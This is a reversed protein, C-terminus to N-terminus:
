ESDLSIWDCEDLDLKHMVIWTEMPDERTETIRRDLVFLTDGRFTQSPAADLSVPVKGDVCAEQLDPSTAGAWLQGATEPVPGDTSLLERDLHTFAIGGGPLEHLNSTESKVTIQEGELDYREVVDDPVGRRRVSPLALTDLVQGDRDFLWLDNYGSWGRVLTDGLDLVQGIRFSVAYGAEGTLEVSEHYEEPLTGFAERTGSEPSWRVFPHHGALDLTAFVLGDYTEVPPTGAGLGQPLAEDWGRRYEGTRRDFLNLRRGQIDEVVLTSDNLVFTSGTGQLEGPGEGPRGYRRVLDGDRDFRYVTRSFSDPVYISGDYPDVAPYWPRGIHLTDSDPLRISDVPTVGPGSLQGEAWGDGDSGCGSIMVAFVAVALGRILRRPAAM